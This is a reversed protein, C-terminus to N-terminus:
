SIYTEPSLLLQHCCCKELIEVHTVVEVCVDVVLDVLGIQDVLKVFVHVLGQQSIIEEGLFGGLLQKLEALGGDIFHNVQEVYLLGGDITM